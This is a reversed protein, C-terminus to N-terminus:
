LPYDAYGKKLLYYSCTLGAPGSGVIAIQEKRNPLSTVIKVKTEYESVYRELYPISVPSDFEKRNCADECPHFCVRGTIAPFPNTEQLLLLAEEIKKESMLRIFGEVDNGAPCSDSCPPIKTREIPRDPNPRM